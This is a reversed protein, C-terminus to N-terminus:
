CLFIRVGQQYDAAILFDESNRFDRPDALPIFAVPPTTVTRPEPENVLSSFETTNYIAIGYEKMLVALYGRQLPLFSLAPADTKIRLRPHKEPTEASYVEIGNAGAAVLTLDKLTLSDSAFDTTITEMKANAFTSEKLSIGLLAPKKKQRMSPTKMGRCNICLRTWPFPQQKM